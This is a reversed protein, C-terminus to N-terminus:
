EPPNLLQVAVSREVDITASCDRTGNKSAAAVHRDVNGSHGIWRQRRNLIELRAQIKRTVRQDELLEATFKGASM